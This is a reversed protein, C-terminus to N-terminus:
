RGGARSQAHSKSVSIVNTSGWESRPRQNARQMKPTAWRVNGPEYGRNNDIRDLSFDGDPPPPVDETFGKYTLWNDCVTIGRGGYNRFAQNRPNTCRQVIGNWTKYRRTRSEGHKTGKEAASERQLCGCSKTDGVLLSSAVVLTTGGCSCECRWFIRKRGITQISQAEIPTLRGFQKGRLDHMRM